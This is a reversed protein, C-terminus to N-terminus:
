WVQKSKPSYETKFVYSLKIVLDVCKMYSGCKWKLGDCFVFFESIKSFDSGIVMIRPQLTERREAYIKVIEM